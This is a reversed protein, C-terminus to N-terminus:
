FFIFWIDLKFLDIEEEEKYMNFLNSWVCQLDVKEIIALLM